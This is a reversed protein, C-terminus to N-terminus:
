LTLIAIVVLLVGSALRYREKRTQQVNARETEKTLKDTVVTVKNEANETKSKEVTVQETLNTNQTTVIAVQSTLNIVQTEAQIKSAIATSSVQREAILATDLTDIAAIYVAKVETVIPICSESVVKTYLDNKHTLIEDVQPKLSAAFLQAEALKKDAQAKKADILKKEQELGAKIASLDNYDKKLKESLSDLEKARLDLAAIKSAYEKNAKDTVYKNTFYVSSGLLVLVAIGISIPKLNNKIIEVLKPIM